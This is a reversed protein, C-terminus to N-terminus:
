LSKKALTVSKAPKHSLQNLFVDTTEFLHLRTVALAPYEILWHELTHQGEGSKLCTPDVLPDIVHQYARLLNSRSSRLQTQM